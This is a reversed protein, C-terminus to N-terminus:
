PAVKTHKVKPIVDDTDERMMYRHRDLLQGKQVVGGKKNNQQHLQWLMPNIKMQVPQSEVKVEPEPKDTEPKETELKTTEAIKPPESSAAVPVRPLKAYTEPPKSEVSKSEESEAKVSTSSETSIKSSPPKSTM